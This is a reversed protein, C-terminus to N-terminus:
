KCDCETLDCNEHDGNQCPGCTEKCGEPEKVVRWNEYYTDLHKETYLELKLGTDELVENVITWLVKNQRASRRVLKAFKIMLNIHEPKLDLSKAMGNLEQATQHYSMEHEGPKTTHKSINMLIAKM